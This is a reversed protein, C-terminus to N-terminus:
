GHRGDRWPFGYHLGQRLWYLSDSMDRDPGNDTAFLDGNPAFAFDFANRPGQAYVYGENLLTPLDNTLFIVSGNLPVRFVKATLPM